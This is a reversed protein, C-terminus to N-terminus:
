SSLGGAHRHITKGMKPFRILEGIDQSSLDYWREWALDKKEIQVCLCGRLRKTPALLLPPRPASM